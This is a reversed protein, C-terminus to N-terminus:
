QIRHTGAKKSREHVKGSAFAHNDPRAIVTGLKVTPMVKLVIEGLSELGGARLASDDDPYVITLLIVRKFV